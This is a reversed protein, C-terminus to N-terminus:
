EAPRDLDITLEGSEKLERIIPSNDARFHGTLADDESFLSKKGRQYTANNLAERTPRMQLAVRYKGPPIGQGDPGLVQFRGSLPDFHAPYPGGNPLSKGTADKLELAFLTIGLKRGPPVVLPTNGKLVKGTIKITGSSDCGPLAFILGALIFKIKISRM